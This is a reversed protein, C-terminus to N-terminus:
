RAKRQLAAAKRREHRNGSLDLPIVREPIRYSTEYDWTTSMTSPTEVRFVSDRSTGNDSFAVM